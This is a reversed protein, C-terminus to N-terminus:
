YEFWYRTVAFIALKMLSKSTYVRWETSKSWIVVLLVNSDHWNDQFGGFTNKITFDITKAAINIIGVLDCRKKVQDISWIRLTCSLSACSRIFHFAFVARSVLTVSSPFFIMFYGLYWRLLRNCTFGLLAGSVSTVISHLVSRPRASTLLKPPM